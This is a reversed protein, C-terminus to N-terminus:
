FNIFFLYVFYYKGATLDRNLGARGLFKIAFHGGILALIAAMLTFPGDLYLSLTRIVSDNLDYRYTCNPIMRNSYSSSNFILLLTELEEEFFSFRQM